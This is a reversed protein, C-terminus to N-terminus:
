FCYLLFKIERFKVVKAYSFGLKLRDCVKFTETVQAYPIGLFELYDRGNRSEGFKGRLQGQTVTAIPDVEYEKTYVGDCFFLVVLAWFCM